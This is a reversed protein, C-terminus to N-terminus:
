SGSGTKVQLDNHVDKVGPVKSAVRTAESREDASDVFGSLQVVGRLTTVDIQRAKTVPNTVLQAKVKATLLSDDITMGASTDTSRVELNNRVHAVGKTQQALETARAKSEATDVFGSLLVTGRFTQVDIQRAQTVPDGILATKVKASIVSDDLVEGPAERTRTSACAAAALAAILIAATRAKQLNM